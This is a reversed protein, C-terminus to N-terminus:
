TPCGDAHATRVRCGVYQRCPRALGAKWTALTLIPWLAFANNSTGDRHARWLGQIVEPRLYPALVDAHRDLVQECLPLLDRRMLRAIPVNFGKKPADAVAAPIGLRNALRRLIYKPPGNPAPNMLSVDIRGALEMLRRDLLPVRVELGHAMSMADVKTLVSQLHFRQDALMARDLVKAQPECYYQAYESYPSTGVLGEMARGYLQQALFQPVLRRWQLHTIAGGEGIGLAFRAVLASYPLREENRPNAQYALRGIVRALSPPVLRRILEAARTASYTEYGCFFEDGGDGSLVVKSHERVAGSILYFALAGTDACQGDFSHVVARFASQLDGSSECVIIRHDLGCSDAIQHARETEDHSRDAFGATFLPVKIGSRGLTLTVLSSDIGGSQLVGIPVDSILQSKVVEDLARELLSLAAEMDRIESVRYPRWFQRESRKAATFSIFTGPPIQKIDRLLSRATGAHGAAFFTHLAEPELEAVIAGSALLGKIESAFLVHDDNATYYLPKIGIPDRSLLLRREQRDWIGIAYFGELREFMTEGWALYAYPLIETDCTTHFSVGFNRRLEDRLEQDNYIEGNYTVFVRGTVDSMPQHGNLSLDRIALRRHALGVSGEHWLGHDDPGRHGLAASMAALSKVDVPADRRDLWGAIGCM